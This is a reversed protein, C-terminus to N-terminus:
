GDAADLSGRTMLDESAKGFFASGGRAPEKAELQQLFIATDGLEKVLQVALHVQIALSQKQFFQLAKGCVHTLMREIRFPHENVDEFFLVGGKVQPFWPTGLLSTLVALNGGWLPGRVQLRGFVKGDHPLIKGEDDVIKMEVTFPVRGQKMKAKIQAEHELEYHQPLLKGTTGIPSMETMGWAHIVEVGYDEEFARLM